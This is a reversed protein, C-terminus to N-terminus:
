ASYEEVLGCGRRTVYGYAAGPSEIRMRYSEYTSSTAARVLTFICSSFGGVITCPM